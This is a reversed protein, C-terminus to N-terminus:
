KILNLYEISPEIYKQFKLLDLNCSMDFSNLEDVYHKMMDLSTLLNKVRYDKKGNAISLFPKHFILSFVTGHFSSSIVCESYKILGLFDEPSSYVIEPSSELNADASLILLKCKKRDSIDKAIKMGIVSPKVQYYLVYKDIINPKKAIKEWNSQNLLLTPDVCTVVKKDPLLTRIRQSIIEERTSIMYFSSLLRKVKNDEKESWMQELSAAYSIIKTKNTHVFQGWYYRDYGNTLRTNWVQDSGIIVYDFASSKLLFLDSLNFNNKVFKDFQKGRRKKTLMIGLQKIFTKDLVSKFITRINFCQYCTLLYKQRYDVISVEHGLSSLYEKLAYCQLVAGYNYAAHFTLIGIKM